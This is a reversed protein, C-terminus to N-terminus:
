NRTISGGRQYLCIYQELIIQVRPYSSGSNNGYKSVDIELLSRPSKKPQHVPVHARPPPSKLNPQYIPLSFSEYIAQAM